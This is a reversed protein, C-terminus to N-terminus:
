VHKLSRLIFRTYHSQLFMHDVYFCYFFFLKQHWCCFGLQVQLMLVVCSLNRYKYKIYEKIYIYGPLWLPIANIWLKTNNDQQIIATFATQKQESATGKLAPCPQFDRTNWYSKVFVSAAASPFRAVALIKCFYTVQSIAVLALCFLPTLTLPSLTCKHCFGKM